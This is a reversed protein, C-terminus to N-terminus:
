DPKDWVQFQKVELFEDHVSLKLDEVEGCSMYYYRKSCPRYVYLKMKSIVWGKRTM